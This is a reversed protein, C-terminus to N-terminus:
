RVEDTFTIPLYALEFYVVKRISETPIMTVKNFIRSKILKKQDCCFTSRRVNPSDKWFKVKSLKWLRFDVSKLSNKWFKSKNIVRFIIHKHIINPKISPSIGSLYNKFLQQYLCILDPKNLGEFFNPYYAKLTTNKNWWVLSLLSSQVFPSPSFNKVPSSVQDDPDGSGCESLASTQVSLKSELNMLPLM